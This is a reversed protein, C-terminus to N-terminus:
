RFISGRNLCVSSGAVAHAGGCLFHAVNKVSGHYRNRRLIRHRLHDPLGFALTRNVNCPRVSFAPAVKPPLSEPGSAIEDRCHTSVLLDNPVIDSVLLLFVTSDVLKLQHLPGKLPRLPGVPGTWAAKLPESEESAGPRAPPATVHAPCAPQSPPRFDREWRPPPSPYPLALADDRPPTQLFRPAFTRASPCSSSLYARPDSSDAHSSSTWM